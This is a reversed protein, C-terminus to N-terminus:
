TGWYFNTGDYRLANGPSPTNTAPFAHLTLNTLGSADGTIPAMFVQRATWINTRAFQPAQNSWANWIQHFNLNVAQWAQWNSVTAPPTSNTWWTDLADAHGFPIYLWTNTSQAPATLALALAALALLRKTM